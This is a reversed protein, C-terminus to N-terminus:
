KVLAYLKSDIFADDKRYLKRMMGEPEFGCKELVRISAQNFTFVHAAIRVLKWESFAFECASRIVDTMIGQGWFPKALWYGIEACHGYSLGEFGCGGILQQDRRRIAFNVPHGRKETSMCTSTIFHEADEETYPYPIRLTNEYIDRDNLYRIFASKDAPDIASLCIDDRGDISIENM